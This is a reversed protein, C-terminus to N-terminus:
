YKSYSHSASSVCFFDIFSEEVKDLNLKRKEKPFTTDASVLLTPLTTPVELTDKPIQRHEIKNITIANPQQVEIPVLAIELSQKNTFRISKQLYKRKRIEISKITVDNDLKLKFFGTKDTIAATLTKKEFVSAEAIPKNTSYDYIYGIIVIQKNAEEKSETIKHLIIHNKRETYSVQGRFIDDLIQKISLNNVQITVRKKLDIEAPNYSFSFNGQEGIIRLADNLPQNVIKVSITKQLINKQAVTLQVYAGM